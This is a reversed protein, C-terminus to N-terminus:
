WRYQAAIEKSNNMNEKFFYQKIGPIFTTFYEKWIVNRMDFDLRNKFNKTKEVMDLVNKNRVKWERIGFHSM